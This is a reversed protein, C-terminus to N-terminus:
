PKKEYSTRIVKGDPTQVIVDGSKENYIMNINRQVNIEGSPKRLLLVPTGVAAIGAVGVAPDYAYALVAAGRSKMLDRSQEKTLTIGSEKLKSLSNVRHKAGYVRPSRGTGYPIYKKWGLADLERATSMSENVGLDTHGQKLLKELRRVEREGYENNVKVHLVEKLSRGEVQVAKQLSEFRPKIFADFQAHQFEHIFTQWTSGPRLAIVKTEGLYYAGAGANRISTDVVLDIGMDNMKKLYQEMEPHEFANTGLNANKTAPPLKTVKLIEGYYSEGNTGKAYNIDQPFHKVNEEVYTMRTSDKEFGVGAQKLEKIQSETSALVRESSVTAKALPRFTEASTIIKTGSKIASPGPLVGLVTGVAGELVRGSIERDDKKIRSKEREFLGPLADATKVLPAIQYHDKIAGYTNAASSLALAGGAIASGYCGLGFTFPCLVLGGITGGAMLLQKGTGVYESATRLECSCAAKILLNKEQSWRILGATLDLDLQMSQCPDLECFASISEFSSTMTKAMLSRLEAELKPHLPKSLIRSIMDEGDQDIDESPETPLRGKEKKPFLIQEIQPHYRTSDQDFSNGYYTKTLQRLTADQGSNGLLPYTESIRRLRDQHKKKDEETVPRYSPIREIRNTEIWAILMRKLFFERSKELQDSSAEKLGLEEEPKVANVKSKIESFQNANEGTCKASASEIAASLSKGNDGKLPDEKGLWKAAAYQSILSSRIRQFYDHKISQALKIGEAEILNNQIPVISEFAKNRLDCKSFEKDKKISTCTGSNGVLDDGKLTPEKFGPKSYTAVKKSSQKAMNMQAFSENALMGLVLVPFFLFFNKWKGFHSRLIKSIFKDLSFM